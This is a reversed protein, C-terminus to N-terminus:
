IEKPKLNFMEVISFFVSFFFKKFTVLDKIDRTNTYKKINTTENRTTLLFFLRERLVGWFVFFNIVFM